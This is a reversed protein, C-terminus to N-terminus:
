KAESVANESNEPQQQEHFQKLFAPEKTKESSGPTSDTSSPLVVLNKLKKKHEDYRGVVHDWVHEAEGITVRGGCADSLMDAYRNFFESDTEVAEAIADGQRFAHSVDFECTLDDGERPFRFVLMESQITIPESM